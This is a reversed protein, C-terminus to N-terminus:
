LEDKELVKEHEAFSWLHFYASTGGMEQRAAKLEARSLREDADKDAIQYLVRVAEEAQYVGTKYRVYEEVNLRKDGDLDLGRFVEKFGPPVKGGGPAVAKRFEKSTLGGDGNTDHKRFDLLWHLFMPLEDTNLLGDKDGDFSRFRAYADEKEEEELKWHALDERLEPLSLRGDKDTDMHALIQLISDISVKERHARAYSLAERLSVVGDGDADM